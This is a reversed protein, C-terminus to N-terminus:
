TIATYAVKWLPIRVSIREEFYQCSAGFIVSMTMLIVGIIIVTVVFIVLLQPIGIFLVMM